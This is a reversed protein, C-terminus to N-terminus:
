FNNSINNIWVGTYIVSLWFLTWKKDRYTVWLWFPQSLLGVVHGWRQYPNDPKLGVMFIASVALTFLFIEAYNIKPKGM